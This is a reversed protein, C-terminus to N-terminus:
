IFQMMYVCLRVCGRAGLEKWFVFAWMRMRIKNDVQDRLVKTTVGTGKIKTSAPEYTWYKGQMMASAPGAIGTEEKRFAQHSVALICLQLHSVLILRYKDSKGSQIHDEYFSLLSPVITISYLNPICRFKPFIESFNNYETKILVLVCACYQAWHMGVQIM